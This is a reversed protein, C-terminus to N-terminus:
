NHLYVAQALRAIQMAVTHLQLNNWKYLALQPDFEQVRYKSKGEMHLKRETLKTRGINKPKQSKRLKQDTCHLETLRWYKETCHGSDHKRTVHWKTRRVIHSHRTRIRKTSKFHKFPIGVPLKSCYNSYAHWTYCNRNDSTHPMCLPETSYRLM